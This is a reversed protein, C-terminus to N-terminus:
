RPDAAGAALEADIQRAFDELYATGHPHHTLAVFIYHRGAGTVVASDHSWTEWWGSKRRIDLGRGALAKVFRDELHPIGPSAFISRMERSAADSVLRGQELLLYFRLVQRVTAVHTHGGIHDRVRESDQGYHKGFWLGGGRAADYFGHENLIAQVRSIGLARSYKSAEANGSRKIMEGLERRTNADLAGIRDRHEHFWALLIAVKPLSAAYTIADPRVLALRGSRLDLVGAATDVAAMGHKARLEADLASLRDQLHPDVPTDYDLTLSRWPAEPEASRGQEVAGIALLFGIAPM